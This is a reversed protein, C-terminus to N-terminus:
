CRGLSSALLHKMYEETRCSMLTYRCKCAHKSKEECISRHVAELVGLFCVSGLKATKVSPHQLPPYVKRGGGILYVETLYQHVNAFSIIDFYFPERYPDLM